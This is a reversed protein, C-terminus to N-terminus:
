DDDDDDAEAAGEAEPSPQFDARIETHRIEGGSTGTQKGTFICAISLVLALMFGYRAFEKKKATFFLTLISIVGLIVTLLLFTEAQEEHEHIIQHSIGGLGEVVEEAEEGTFNAILATFASFIFIGLATVKVPMKISLYGAILVLAGIIVGVIPLHNVVLHLHAGNM